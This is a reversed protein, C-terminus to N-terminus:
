EAAESSHLLWLRALTRLANTEMQTVAGDVCDLLLGIDGNAIVFSSTRVQDSRTARERIAAEHKRYRAAIRAALVKDIKLTGVLYKKFAEAKVRALVSPPANLQLAASAGFLDHRLALAVRYNPRLKVINEKLWAANEGAVILSLADPPSEGRKRMSRDYADEFSELNGEADILQFPKPKHYRSGYEENLVEGIASETMVVVVLDIFSLEGLAFAHIAAAIPTRPEDAEDAARQVEDVLYLEITENLIREATVVVAGSHERLYPALNREALTYLRPNNYFARKVAEEIKKADCKGTKILSRLQQQDYGDM